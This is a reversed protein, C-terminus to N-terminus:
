GAAGLLRRLLNSDVRLEFAEDGDIEVVPVREGYEQELEPSGDIFVERFDFPTTAREAEIVARAKDCLSCTRRSYM